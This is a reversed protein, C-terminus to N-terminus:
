TSEGGHFTVTMQVQLTAVNSHLYQISVPERPLTITFFGANAVAGGYTSNPLTAYLPGMQGGLRVLRVEIAPAISPASSAFAVVAINAQGSWVPLSFNTGDVNLGPSENPLVVTRNPGSFLALGSAYEQCYAPMLSTYATITLDTTIGTTFGTLLISMRPSRVPVCIDCVSGGAATPSFYYTDPLAVVFGKPSIWNVDIHAGSAIVSPAYLTIRLSQYGGLNDFIKSNPIAAGTAEFLTTIQPSGPGNAPISSFDAVNNSVSLEGNAGQPTPDSIAYCFKGAAWVVSQGPVITFDNSAASVTSQDDVYVNSQGSNTLVSPSATSNQIIPIPQTTPVSIAPTGM